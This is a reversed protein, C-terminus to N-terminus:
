RRARDAILPLAVAGALAGLYPLTAAAGGVGAPGSSGTIVGVLGSLAVGVVFGGVLGGIILLLVKM